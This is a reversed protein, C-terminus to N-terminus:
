ARVDVIKCTCKFTVYGDKVYPNNDPSALRAKPVFTPYGLNQAKSYTSDTTYKVESARLGDHHVLEYTHQVKCPFPGGEVNLYVGFYDQYQPRDDKTQVSLRVKYGRVVQDESYLRAPLSPFRPVFPVKGTLEDYKVRFTIIGPRCDYLEAQLIAHADQLEAFDKTQQQL